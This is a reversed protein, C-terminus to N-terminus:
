NPWTPGMMTQWMNLYDDTLCLTIISTVFDEIVVCRYPDDLELHKISRLMAGWGHRHLLEGLEFPIEMWGEFINSKQFSGEDRMM